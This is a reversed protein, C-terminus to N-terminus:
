GVNKDSKLFDLWSIWLKKDRGFFEYCLKCPFEKCDFCMEVGKKEACAPLKCYPNPACGSCQNKIFKPCRECFIGCVGTKM